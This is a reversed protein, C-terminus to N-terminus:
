ERTFQLTRTVGPADIRVFYNGSSLNNIDLILLNFGKAVADNQTQMVQQGISNFVTLNSTGFDGANLPIYVENQAPNPYLNGEKLEVTEDELKETNPCTSGLIGNLNLSWDNNMVRDAM